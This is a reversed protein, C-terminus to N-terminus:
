KDYKKTKGKQYMELADIPIIVGNQEDAIQKEAETREVRIKALIHGETIVLHNGTFYAGTLAPKLQDKSVGVKLNFSRNYKM